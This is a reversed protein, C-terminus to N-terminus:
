NEVGLNDVNVKPKTETYVKLTAFIFVTDIITM